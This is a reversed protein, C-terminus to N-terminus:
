KIKEDTLADCYYQASQTVANDIIGDTQKPRTVGALSELIDKKDEM